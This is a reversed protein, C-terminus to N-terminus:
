RWPRPNCRAGTPLFHAPFNFRPERALSRSSLPRTARKIWNVCNAAREERRGGGGGCISEDCDRKKRECMEEVGRLQRARSLAFIESVERRPVGLFWIETLRTKKKKLSRHFWRIASLHTDPKGAAQQFAAAAAVAQGLDREERARRASCSNQLDAALQALSLPCKTKKKKKKKNQHARAARPWIVKLVCQTHERL